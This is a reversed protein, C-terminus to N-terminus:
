RDSAETPVRRRPSVARRHPRTHAPGREMWDGALRNLLRTLDRVDEASWERIVAGFVDVGAEAFRALQADGEPTTSILCSRGDAPDALVRVYGEAELAQVYRTITSPNVDLADAADSPRLPEGSAAMRLLGVRAIDFTAAMGRHAGEVLLTVAEALLTVESRSAQV